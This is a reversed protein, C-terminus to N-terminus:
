YLIIDIIPDIPKNISEITPQITVQDKSETKIHDTPQEKLGKIEEKLSNIEEDMSKMKALILPIFEQYNLTLGSNNNEVLEPFLKEVDQAIFGYHKKNKRDTKYTFTSPKLALLNEFLEKNIDENIEKINDKSKEDSPNFISGTVILDADILVTKKPITPTIVSLNGQINKLVWGVTGTASSIFQKVTGVKTDVKGGYNAVTSVIGAM